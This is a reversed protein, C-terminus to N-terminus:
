NYYLLWLLSKMILYWSNLHIFELTTLFVGWSLRWPDAKLLNLGLPSGRKTVAAGFIACLAVKNYCTWVMHFWFFKIQFSGSALPDRFWWLSITKKCPTTDRFIFLRDYIKWHWLEPGSTLPEFWCLLQLYTHSFLSHIINERGELVVVLTLKHLICKVKSLAGM